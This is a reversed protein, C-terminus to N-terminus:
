STTTAYKCLSEFFRIPHRLGVILKTHPFYNRFYDIVHPQTVDSPGKYGRRYWQMEKKNTKKDTNKDDYPLDRYL